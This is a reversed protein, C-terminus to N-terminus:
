FFRSGGEMRIISILFAVSESQFLVLLNLALALLIELEMM